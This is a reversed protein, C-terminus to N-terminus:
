AEITSADEPVLRALFAEAFRKVEDWCKEIDEHRGPMGHLVLQGSAGTPASVRRFLPM